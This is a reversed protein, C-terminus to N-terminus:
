QQITRDFGIMGYDLPADFQVTQRGHLHDIGLAIPGFNAHGNSLSPSGTAGLSGSHRPFRNLKRAGARYSLTLLTLGAPPHGLGAGAGGLSLISESL